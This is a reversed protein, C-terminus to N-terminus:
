QVGGFALSAIQATDSVGIHLYTRQAEELSMGLQYCLAVHNQTLQFMRTAYTHRLDHPTYKPSLGAKRLAAKWGNLHKDMPRAHDTEMHFFYPSGPVLGARRHLVELADPASVIFQRAQRTKTDQKELSIVATDNELLLFRVRSKALNRVEGPRMGTRLQLTIRDRWVQSAADLLREIEDQPIVHGRERADEREENFEFQLPAPLLGKQHAYKALMVMYKWHNFLRVTPDKLRLANKYNEWVTANLDSAFACRENLYPKIHLRYFIEAQEYTAPSKSKKLAVIEDCLDECRTLGKAARKRGFRAEFILRDAEKLADKWTKFEGKHEGLLKTRLQKGEGRWNVRYSTKFKGEWIELYYPAKPIKKWESM